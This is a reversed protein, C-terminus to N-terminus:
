APTNITIGNAGHIIRVVIFESPQTPALGILTIVMGADRVEAPNTDADCKVFFAEQATRGKLAGLQHLNEFYATLERTIRSWLLTQNPEFVVNAMAREIWRGATLFLRRVSVYLWNPDNSLTRAGWVRIGRGPFARLCNIGLPNLLGQQADTLNDALDLVGELLENAPAKFVGIQQDSRAYVGAVHGCAPVFPTNAAGVAPNIDTVLCWPYYLAGLQGKLGQRQEQISTLGQPPWADLIAFRDGTKACHDLVANQMRLIAATDLPAPNNNDASQPLPSMIDPACVLDISDLTALDGLAKALATEKDPQDDLHVVYCLGGGNDFFGRVAYALFSGPAPSGFQGTFQSWQTIPQGRAGPTWNQTYGIFAPVGSLLAAAPTLYIDEGYVGPTTHLGM